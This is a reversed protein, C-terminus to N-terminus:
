WDSALTNSRFSQRKAPRGAIMKSRTGCFESMTRMLRGRFYRCAGRQLSDRVDAQDLVESWPAGPRNRSGLTRVSGSIASRERALRERSPARRGTGKRIGAQSSAPLPLGSEKFLYSTVQDHEAYLVRLPQVQRAVGTLYHELAGEPTVSGSLTARASSWTTM